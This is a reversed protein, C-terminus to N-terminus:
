EAATRHGERKRQAGSETTLWFTVAM